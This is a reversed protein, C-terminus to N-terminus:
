RVYIFKKIIIKELAEVRYLYVGSSVSGGFQDKGNWNIRHSGAKFNEAALMRVKQGNVNFIDVTVYSNKPLEFPIITLNNFPNPYNQLVRFETPIKPTNFHDAVESVSGITFVSDSTDYAGNGDFDFTHVKILCEKSVTDPIAWCAQSVNGSDFEMITQWNEGGDVTLEISISDIGVNDTATWKITDNTSKKLWQGGNPYLLNVNPALNDVALFDQESQISQLQSYERFPPEFKYNELLPLVRYNGQTIASFFYKGGEVSFVTDKNTGTLFLEVGMLAQGRTDIITGSISYLNEYDAVAHHHTNINVIIPNGGVVLSDLMWTNFQFSDTDTFIQQPAERLLVSDGEVYWGTEEFEIMGPPMTELFLYHQPIVSAMLKIATDAKVKHFLDRGDDWRDFLYRSLSDPLSIISDIGVIHETQYKWFKSYPVSFRVSDVYISIEDDADTAIEVLVSDIQYVANLIHFTDMQVAVPNIDNPQGDVLWKMFVYKIESTIITDPAAIQVMSDNETYWKTEAFQFLDEPLTHISLYFQKDWVATEVIPSNVIISAHASAGSYSGNGKGEWSYFLYRMNEIPSFLSDVSIEVTVGKNYWGQGDTVGFQSEVKVFYQTIWQATETIPNNVVIKVVRDEGSYAGDGIGKWGTFVFRTTDGSIILSDISITATDGNEYWGEGLVSGYESQLALFYEKKMNCQFITDYVPAVLHVSDGEDSWNSFIYRNKEDKYFPPAVGISHETGSYWSTDFPISKLDGDIFIDIPENINTTFSISILPAFVNVKGNKIIVHPQGANFFFTQLELKSSDAHAGIIEAEVILLIGKGILNYVGFSGVDIEGDGKDNMIVNSSWPSSLTGDTKLGLINLVNNNYKLTFQYSFILDLKKLEDVNIPILITDGSMASTDPLSVDIQAMLLSSSALYFIILYVFYYKKRVKKKIM